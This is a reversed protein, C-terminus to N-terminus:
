TVTITKMAQNTSDYVMMVIDKWTLGDPCTLPSTFGSPSGQDKVAIAYGGSGDTRIISLLFDEPTIELHCTAM